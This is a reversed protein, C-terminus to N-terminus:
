TALASFDSSKLCISDDFTHNPVGVSEANPRRAKFAVSAYALSIHIEIRAHNLRSTASNTRMDGHATRARGTVTNAAALKISAMFSIAAAHSCCPLDFGHKEKAELAVSARCIARPAGAIIKRRPLNV